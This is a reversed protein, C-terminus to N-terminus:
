LHEWNKQLSRWDPSSLGECMSNLTRAGIIRKTTGDLSEITLCVLGSPVKTGRNVLTSITLDNNEVILGLSEAIETRVYSSDSGDDLFANVMRKQGGSGIVNVPILRLAVKTPM